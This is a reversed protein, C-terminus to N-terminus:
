KRGWSGLPKRQPLGLAASGPVTSVEPTNTAREIAAIGQQVADVPAGMSPVQMKFIERILEPPLRNVQSAFDAKSFDIQGPFGGLQALQLQPGVPDSMGPGQEKLAKATADDAPMKAKGSGKGM